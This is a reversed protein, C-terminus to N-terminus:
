FPIDDDMDDGTTPKPKPQKPTTVAVRPSIPKVLVAPQLKGQFEIEGAAFEVTHGVWDDTDPGYAMTLARSNTANLSLSFGEDSNLDLKNYKGEAISSITVRLPGETVGKM